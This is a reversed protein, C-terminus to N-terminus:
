QGEEKKEVLEGNLWRRLAIGGGHKTCYFKGDIEVTAGHQCKLPDGGPHRLLFRDQRWKVLRNSIIEKVDASCQIYPVSPNPVPLPKRSSISM